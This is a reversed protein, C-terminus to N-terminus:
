AFRANLFLIIEDLVAPGAQRAVAARVPRLLAARVGEGPLGPANAFAAVAQAVESAHRAPLVPLVLVAPVGDDLLANALQIRDAFDHRRVAGDGTAPEAQLVVALPRGRTLQGATLVNGGRGTRPDGGVSMCPGASTRVARGIVHRVRPAPTRSPGPRDYYRALPRDQAPEPILEAGHGGSHVADVQDAAIRVWEIRGAAGPGLSAALIREWPRGAQARSSRITGAVPAQRQPDWWAGPPSDPPAAWDVRGDEPPAAGPALVGSYGASRGTWGAAVVRTALAIARGRLRPWTWAPASPSPGLRVRLQVLGRPEGPEGSATGAITAHFLLREIPVAGIGREAALRSVARSRGSLVLGLPVAAARLLARRVPAVARAVPATGARDETEPPHGPQTATEARAAPHVGATARQVADAWYRWPGAEEPPRALVAALGPHEAGVRDWRYLLVDQNEARLGRLVPSDREDDTCRSLAERLATLALLTGVHDDCDSYALAAVWYVGAAAAPLRLALLEAEEFATEAVLRKPEHLRPAYRDARALAALRLKLRLGPYPDASRAPPLSRWRAQGPPNLLADLREELPELNRSGLLRMETLDARIDALGPRDADQNRPPWPVPPVTRPVGARQCQWWAHWGEPRDTELQADPPPEGYIVAWARRAQDLTGIHARAVSQYESPSALRTLLSRQDTLRFRRALGAIGAEAHRVTADDRAANAESRRQELLALGREPWGASLWAEAVSVFLPPVLDHASCSAARDREYRDASEWREADSPPVAHHRLRVRLCLSALREGDASRLREAAYDEWDHLLAPGSPTGILEGDILGREIRVRALLDEPPLWYPWAWRAGAAPALREAAAIRDRARSLDRGALLRAEAAFAWAAPRDADGPLLARGNGPRGQFASRFSTLDLLELLQGAEASRGAELLRHVADIVATGLEPTSALIEREARLVDWLPAEAPGSWVRGLAGLARLQRQRDPDPHGSASTLVQGWLERADAPPMGTRQAAIFAAMVAAQLAGRAPWDAADEDWEGLIRRTIADVTGWQDPPAPARATIVDWLEASVAPQEAWRLAAVVEDVDLPAFPDDGLRRRVVEAFRHMVLSFQARRGATGYYRRLREAMSPWATVFVPPASGQADIWEQAALQRGLPVADCGLVAAITEVRCKGAAALMPLSREVLPDDLREIIRSEIYADNGQQIDAAAIGPEEDVWARYLALDFPNVRAPLQGRAPVPQDVARSQRIIEDALDATLPRDVRLALYRRADAVTFGTVALEELWTAAPLPRRGALLVRLSGAQGHLRSVMELMTRVAPSNLQGPNWKALEECTDLILLVGGLENVLVAFADIAQRVEPSELPRLDGDRLGSFAQHASEARDYFARLAEEAQDSHDTHPALEDALELLLQVPKRVPYDPSVHDFNASAIRIPALGKDEAYKGSTLWRILTTKGVGGAGRLHLAWRDTGPALLRAVADSLEPRDLYRSLARQDARRYRGRDLMRRARELAEGATGDVVPELATGAVVLEQARSLDDEEVARRVHEVLRASVAHRVHEVPNASAAGSGAGAFLETWAQLAGPLDARETSRHMKTAVHQADRVVTLDGSLERLTDFVDGRVEDPMWFRLDAREDARLSGHVKCWGLDCVRRVFDLVSDPKVPFGTIEAVACTWLPPAALWLTPQIGLEGIMAARQERLAQDLRAQLGAPATTM